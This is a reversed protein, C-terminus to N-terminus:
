AGTSVRVPRCCRRPLLDRARHDHGHTLIEPQLIRNEITTQRVRLRFAIRAALLHHVVEGDDCSVSPSSSRAFRPSSASSSMESRTVGDGERSATSATEIWRDIVCATRRLRLRSGAPSSIDSTFDHGSRSWSRRWPFGWRPERPRFGRRTAARGVSAPGARRSVVSGGIAGSPDLFDSSSRLLTPFPSCPYLNLFFLPQCFDTPRMTVSAHSRPHRARPLDDYANVRAVACAFAFRHASDGAADKIPCRLPNV